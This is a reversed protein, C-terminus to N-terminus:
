KGSSNSGNSSSSSNDMLALTIEVTMEQGQRVVTLQLTDGAAKNAKYSNLAEITNIGQGDVDTIIDYTTLGAESAPSNDMVATVLIGQPFGYSNDESIDTGTIGLMPRQVTGTELMQQVIPEFVESPIAFAIGEVGVESTKAVNIGILQGYQNILAGGSNGSNIAADTQIVDSMTTNSVTISRNLASIVGSTVTGQLEGLPNGIAVVPDGVRLQTSDGFTLYDLNDADIKIIALDTVSDTSVITADYQTGDSMTVVTATSSDIVHNNTLIYGDSSVVVGSGAGEVTQTGFYTEQSSSTNIAVVSSSASAAIDAVSMATGTSSTTSNDSSSASSSIATKLQTNLSSVQSNLAEIEPSLKQDAIFGGLFAGVLCAAVGTAVWGLWRPKSPGSGGKEGLAIQKKAERTAKRRAKAEQKEQKLRAKQEVKNYVPAGTPLSTNQDPYDNPQTQYTSNSVPAAPQNVPEASTFTTPAATGAANFDESATGASTGALDSNQSDAQSGAAKETITEAPNEAPNVTPKEAEPNTKLDNNDDM